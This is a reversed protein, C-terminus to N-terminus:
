SHADNVDMFYYFFFLFQILNKLKIETHQSIIRYYYFFSNAPSTLLIMETYVYTHLMCTHHM